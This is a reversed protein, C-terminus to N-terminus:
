VVRINERRQRDVVREREVVPIAARFAASIAQDLSHGSLGVGRFVAALGDHLDVIDDESLHIPLRETM